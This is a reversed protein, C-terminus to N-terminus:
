DEVAEEVGAVLGGDWFEHPRGGHSDIGEEPLRRPLSRDSFGWRRAFIIYHWTGYNSLCKNQAQATRATLGPHGGSILRHHLWRVPPTPENRGPLNSGRFPPALGQLM